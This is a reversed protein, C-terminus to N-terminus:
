SHTDTESRKKLEGIRSLRADEVAKDAYKSPEGYHQLAHVGAFFLIPGAVSYLEHEYGLGVMKLPGSVVIMGFLLAGLLCYWRLYGMKKEHNQERLYEKHGLYLCRACLSDARKIEAIKRKPSTLHLYVWCAIVWMLYLTVFVISRISM